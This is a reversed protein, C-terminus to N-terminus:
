SVSTYRRSFAHGQSGSFISSRLKIKYLMFLIYNYIHLYTLVTSIRITYILSHINLRKLPPIKTINVQLVKGGVARFSIVNQIDGARRSTNQYRTQM